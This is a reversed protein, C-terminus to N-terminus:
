YMDDHDLVLDYKSVIWDSPVTFSHFDPVHVNVNSCYTDDSGDNLDEWEGDYVSFVSDAFRICRHIAPFSRHPHGSELNDDCSQLNSM